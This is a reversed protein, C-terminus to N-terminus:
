QRWLLAPVYYPFVSGFRSRARNGHRIDFHAEPRWSREAKNLAVCKNGKHQNWEKNAARRPLCGLVRADRVGQPRWPLGPRVVLKMFVSRQTEVYPCGQRM